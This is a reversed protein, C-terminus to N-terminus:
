YRRLSRRTPRPTPERQKEAEDSEETNDTTTGSQEDKEPADEDPVNEPATQQASEQLNDQTIVEQTNSTEQKNFTQASPVQGSQKSSSRDASNAPAAELFMAPPNITQQVASAENSVIIKLFAREPNEKVDVDVCSYELTNAFNLYHTGEMNPANFRYVDRGSNKTSPSLM